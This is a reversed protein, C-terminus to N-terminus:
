DVLYEGVLLIEKANDLAGIKPLILESLLNYFERDKIGVTHGIAGIQSLFSFNGNMVTKVLAPM